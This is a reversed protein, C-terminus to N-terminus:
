FSGLSMRKSLSLLGRSGFIKLHNDLRVLFTMYKTCINIRILWFKSEKEPNAYKYSHVNLIKNGLTVFYCYFFM